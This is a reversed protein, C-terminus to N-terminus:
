NLLLLSGISSEVSKINQEYHSRPIFYDVSFRTTEADANRPSLILKFNILKSNYMIFQDALINNMAFNAHQVDDWIGQSNFTKYFDIRMNALQENDLMPLVAVMMFSSDAQHMYLHRTKLPQGTLENQHLQLANIATSDWNRPPYFRIGSSTDVVPKTALLSTDVDFELEMTISSNNPSGCSLFYSCASFAM